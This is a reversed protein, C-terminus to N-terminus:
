ARASPSANPEDASVLSEEVGELKDTITNRAKIMWLPLNKWKKRSIDVSLVHIVAGTATARDVDKSEVDSERDSQRFCRATNLAEVGIPARTVKPTIDSRPKWPLLLHLPIANSNETRRRTSNVEM